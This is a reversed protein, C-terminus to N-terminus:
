SRSAYRGQIRPQRTYQDASDTDLSLERLSRLVAIRSDREIAVCPHAHIGGKDDRYTLGDAALTERAETLRDLSECAVQLVTLHHSELVFDDLIAKWLTKGARKLHKPPRSEPSQIRTIRAM